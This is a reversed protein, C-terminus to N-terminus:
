GVARGKVESSTAGGRIWADLEPSDDGPAHSKFPKPTLITHPAASAPRSAPLVDNGAGAVAPSGDVSCPAPASAELTDGTADYGRIEVECQLIGAVAVAPDPYRAPDFWVPSWRKAGERRFEAFTLHSLDANLQDSLGVHGQDRAAKNGRTIEHEAAKESSWLDPRLASMSAASLPVLGGSALRELKTGGKRLTGWREVRDVTIDAVVNSLIFIRRANFVPRVRDCAQVIEAERIQELVAQARLDPHVTVREATVTGDRMRRGRAQGYLDLNMPDLAGVPRFPEVDDAAFARAIREIETFPPQERGIIIATDCGEWENIGRLAGFHGFKVAPVDALALELHERVEKTAAVFTSGKLTERIFGVVRAMLEDAERAREESVPEGSKRRGRLSNRSFGKGLVQVVDATREVAARVHDVPGFVKSVLPPSGTGDIILAPLTAVGDVARIYNVSVRPQREWTAVEGTGVRVTANPDYLVSSLGARGTGMEVLVSSVLRAVKGLESQEVADLVRSIAADSMAGDIAGVDQDAMDNLTSRLRKLDADTVGESRLWALESGAHDVVARRLKDATGRVETAASLGPKTWDGSETIRSPSFEVAGVAKMTVDEDIIVMHRRLGAATLPSPLFLYEHAM